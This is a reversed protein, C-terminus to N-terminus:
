WCGRALGNQNHALIARADQDTLGDISAADLRIQKWGACSANGTPVCGSVLILSMLCATKWKTVSKM